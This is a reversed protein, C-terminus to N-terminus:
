RIQHKNYEERIKDRWGNETPYLELVLNENLRDKPRGLLEFVELWGKLECIIEGCDSSTGIPATWECEYNDCSIYYDGIGMVIEDFSLRLDKKGCCPCEIEDLTLKSLSLAVPSCRRGGGHEYSGHFMYQEPVSKPKAIKVNIKNPM